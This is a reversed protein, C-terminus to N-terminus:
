NIILKRKLNYRVKIHACILSDYYSVVKTIACEHKPRWNEDTSKCHISLQMDNHDDIGIYGSNDSSKIFNGERRWLQCGDSISTNSHMFSNKSWILVKRNLSSVMKFTGDPQVDLLWLHKELVM